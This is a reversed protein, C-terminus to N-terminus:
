DCLVKLQDAALRAQVGVRISEPLDMWEHSFLGLLIDSLYEAVEAQLEVCERCKTASQVLELPKGLAPITTTNQGHVHASLLRYPNEQSRTKNKLLVDFRDVFSSYHTRLYKLVEAPLRYGEGYVEVRAWEIPHDKFYLWAVTLDVQSRVSFVAPRVLGISAYTCAEILAAHLGDLLVDAFGTTQSARLYALWHVLPSAAEEYRTCLDDGHDATFQTIRDALQAVESSM